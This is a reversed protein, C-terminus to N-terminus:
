DMRPKLTGGKVESPMVHQQKDDSVASWCTVNKKEGGKGEVNEVGVGYCCFSIRM